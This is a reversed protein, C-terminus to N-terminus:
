DHPLYSGSSGTRGFRVPRTAVLVFGSAFGIGCGGVGFPSSADHSFGDAEFGVFATSSGSSGCARFVLSRSGRVLGPANVGTAGIGSVGGPGASFRITLLPEPASRGGGPMPLAKVSGPGVRGIGESDVGDSRATLAKLPGAGADDAM